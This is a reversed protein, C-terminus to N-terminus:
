CLSDHSFRSCRRCSKACAMLAMSSHMTVGLDSLRMGTIQELVRQCVDHETEGEVALHVEYPHLHRRRLEVALDSRTYRLMPWRGFLSKKWSKDTLDFM